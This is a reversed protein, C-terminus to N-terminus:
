SFPVRDPACTAGPAPLTGDLLYASAVDTTCGSQQVTIHGWGEQVLLASNPLLEHLRQAAALPTAPDYRSSMILIPEATAADWPGRYGTPGQTTWHACASDDWARLAGFHPVAVARADAAAAYSVPGGPHDNDLCGVALAIADLADAYPAMLLGAQDRLDAMRLAMVAGATGAPDDLADEVGALFGAGATPEVWITPQHLWGGTWAVVESYGLRVTRGDPALLRVPEARLRAALREWAGAPDGGGFACREGGEACLRLFEGFTEATAVDSGLRESRLSGPAGSVQAPDVVSDFVFRGVREPFLNAYVTGLFTGYSQGVYNLRDEGLATRLQDMDRAADETSVHDLLDGSEERCAQAFAADAQARAAREAATVPFAPLDAVFATSEAATDFCRV